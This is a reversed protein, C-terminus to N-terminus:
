DSVQGKEQHAYNLAKDQLSDRLFPLMSQPLHHPPVNPYPPSFLHAQPATYKSCSLASDGRPGLYFFSFPFSPGQLM